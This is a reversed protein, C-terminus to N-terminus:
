VHARGIQFAKEYFGEQAYIAGLNNYSSINFKDLSLIQYYKEKAEKLNGNKQLHFAELFIKEM